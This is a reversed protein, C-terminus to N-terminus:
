IVANSKNLEWPKVQGADAVEGQEPRLGGRAEGDVADAGHHLAPRRPPAAPDNSHDGALIDAALTSFAHFTSALM